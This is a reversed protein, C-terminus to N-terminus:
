ALGRLCDANYHSVTGRLAAGKDSRNQPRTSTRDSSWHQSYVPDSNWDPYPLKQTGLPFLLPLVMLACLIAYRRACPGIGLPKHTSWEHSTRWQQLGLWRLSPVVCSLTSSLALRLRYGLPYLFGPEVPARFLAEFSVSGCTLVIRALLSDALNSAARNPTEFLLM